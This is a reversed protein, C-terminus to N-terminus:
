LLDLKQAQKKLTGVAKALDANTHEVNVAMRISQCGDFRDLFTYKSLSLFVGERLAADVFTQLVEVAEVESNQKAVLKLHVFPSLVDEDNEQHVRLSKSKAFAKGLLDRFVKAKKSLAQVLEPGKEELLNLSEIAACALYPPLSASFVYGAGSLRQHDCVRRSGACIGGISGISNGLSALTIDVQDVELGHHEVSGRGSKGLVGLALSEELIMRFNYKEKLAMVGKLPCLDGYNQYIGEVVIFRRQIRELNTKGKKNDEGTVQQLVRELDKLNNHEFYIVTSRSLTLGSQIAYNVGSDAVIVDGSKCFAPIASSPTSIDYSYLIAEETGLFKAMRDEFELHVDITGYFGRPGCSGCGYRQLAKECADEIKESNAFNLFNTSVLNMVKKSGVQVHPASAKGKVVPTKAYRIQKKVPPNKRSRLGTAAEDGDSATAYSTPALPEPVWDEILEEQEAKSLPKEKKPKFSKRTILYLIVAFLLLEVALHGKAEFFWAPHLRGGPRVNSWVESVIEDVHNRKSWCWALNEKVTGGSM